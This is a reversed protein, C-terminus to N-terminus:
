ISESEASSVVKWIHTALLGDEKRQLLHAFVFTSKKHFAISIEVIVKIHNPTNARYYKDVIQNLGEKASEKLTDLNESKALKFEFIICTDKNQNIPTIHVDACGLGVEHNSEVQYDVYHFMVLTGLIFM